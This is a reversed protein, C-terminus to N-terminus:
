PDGWTKGADRWYAMWARCGLQGLRYAGLLALGVVWLGFLDMM